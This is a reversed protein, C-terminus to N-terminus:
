VHYDGQSNLTTELCHRVGHKEYYSACLVLLLATSPQHCPFHVCMTYAILMTGILLMNRHKRIISVCYAILLGFGIIGTEFLMQLFENHLSCWAGEAEFKGHALSPFIAKTSGIGWGVIPHKLSLKLSALWVPGRAYLFNPLVSHYFFYGIGIVVLCIMTLKTYVAPLKQILLANLIIILSMLQMKNGTSAWCVISTQGFNYLSDKHFISLVVLLLEVALICGVTKFVPEWDEIELCLLYFYAAVTVWVFSTYSIWPAASLFCNIFLYPLLVKLFINAKTFIFYISLFGCLLFVWVFQLPSNTLRVAMEFPPTFAQIAIIASVIYPIFKRM